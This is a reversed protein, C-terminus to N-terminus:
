SIKRVGTLTVQMSGHRTQKNEYENSIECVLLTKNKKYFPMLKTHISIYFMQRNISQIKKELMM